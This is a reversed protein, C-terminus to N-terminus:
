RLHVLVVQLLAHNSSSAKDDYIFQISSRRHLFPYQLRTSPPHPTSFDTSSAEDDCILQGIDRRHLFPHQPLGEARSRYWVEWWPNAPPATANLARRQDGNGCRSRTRPHRWSTLEPALRRTLSSTWPLCKLTLVWLYIFCVQSVWGVHLIQFVFLLFIIEVLLYM